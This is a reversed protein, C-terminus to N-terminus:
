KVWYVGQGVYIRRLDAGDFILLEKVTGTVGQSIPLTIRRQFADFRKVCDGGCAIRHSSSLQSTGNEEYFPLLFLAARASPPEL